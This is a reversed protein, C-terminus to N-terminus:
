YPLRGFFTAFVHGVAKSLDKVNENKQGEVAHVGWWLERGDRVRLLRLEMGVVAKNRSWTVVGFKTALQYRDTLVGYTLIRGLVIGDVHAGGGLSKLFPITAVGTNVYTGAFVRYDEALKQDRIMERTDEPAVIAIDPHSQHMEAVFNDALLMSGEQYDLENSFPLFALRTLTTTAFSPDVRADLIVERENPGLKRQASLFVGSAVCATAAIVKLRIHRRM